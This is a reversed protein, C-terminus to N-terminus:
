AASARIRWRSTIRLSNDDATARGRDIAWCEGNRYGSISLSECHLLGMIKENIATLASAGDDAAGWLDLQLEIALDDNGSFYGQPRDSHIHFVLLPLAINTPAQVQYVRGSLDSWISHALDTDSLRAYVANAIAQQSM